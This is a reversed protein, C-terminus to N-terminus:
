EQINILNYLEWFVKYIIPSFSLTSLKYNWIYSALSQRHAGKKLCILQNTKSGFTAQYFIISPTSFSQSLNHLLWIYCHFISTDKNLSLSSLPNGIIPCLRLPLSSCTCFENHTQKERIDLKCVRPQTKIQQSFRNKFKSLSKDLRFPKIFVENKTKRDVSSLKSRQFLKCFNKYWLEIM